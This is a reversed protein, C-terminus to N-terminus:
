VESCQPPPLARELSTRIVEEIEHMAIPRALMETVGLQLLLEREQKSTSRESLVIRAGQLREDCRAAAALELGNLSEDRLPAIVLDVEHKQALELAEKPTRTSLVRCTPCASRLKKKLQQRFSPEHDVIIITLSRDTVVRSNSLELQLRSRTRPADPGVAAKHVFRLLDRRLTESDSYRDSPAKELCKLVIEDLGTPLNPRITSPPQASDALHWTVARVMDLSDGAPHRGTLLEYATIGLAYIDALHEEEPPVVDGSILEPAMYAPTGGTMEADKSEQDVLRRGVGFDMLLVRKSDPQFILNSPKVDRHVVGAEHVADLGAAAQELIHLVDKLPIFGGRVLVSRLLEDVTHGAAYEMVFYPTQGFWGFSYIQAVNPHRISAMALAETRFARVLSEQRQLEPRLFKVAVSRDLVTDQARFVTGMGGRGLEEILRYKDELVIPSASVSPLEDSQSHPTYAGWNNMASAEVRCKQCPVLSAPARCVECAKVGIKAEDMSAELEM